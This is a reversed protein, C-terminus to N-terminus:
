YIKSSNVVKECKDTEVDSMCKKIYELEEERTLNPFPIYKQLREDSIINYFTDIDTENYRRLILRETKLM